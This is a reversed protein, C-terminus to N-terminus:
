TSYHLMICVEEGEEDEEEGERYEVEAVYYNQETGLIKGWFRIHQFRHNDNLQKLALWVRMWEERALGLGAQEYFFALQMLNPLPSETDEAEQDADGDDGVRQLLMTENDSVISPISNICILCVNYVIIGM